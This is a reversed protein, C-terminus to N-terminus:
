YCIFSHSKLELRTSKRDIKKATAVIAHSAQDIIFQIKDTALMNTTVLLASVSLAIQSATPRTRSCRPATSATLVQNPNACTTAIDTALEATANGIANTPKSGPRSTKRATRSIAM